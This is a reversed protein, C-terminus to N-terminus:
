QKSLQTFDEASYLAAQTSGGLLMQGALTKQLYMCGHPSSMAAGVVAEAAGHAATSDDYM